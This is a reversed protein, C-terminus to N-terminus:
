AEEIRGKQLIIKIKRRPDYQLRNSNNSCIQVDSKTKAKIAQLSPIFPRSISYSVHSYYPRPGLRESHFVHHNEVPTNCTESERQYQNTKISSSIGQFVVLMSQVYLTKNVFM